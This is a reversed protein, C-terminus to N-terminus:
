NKKFIKMENIWKQKKKNKDERKEKLYTITKEYNKQFEQLYNAEHNNKTNMKDYVVHDNIEKDQNNEKIENTIPVYPASNDVKFSM